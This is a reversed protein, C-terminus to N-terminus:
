KRKFINTFPQIYASVKLSFIGFLIAIINGLKLFIILSFVIVFILIRFAYSKRTHKLADDERMFVADEISYAMHFVMFLAMLYGEFFGIGIYIDDRFFLLIVLEGLLLYATMGSLLKILMPNRKILGFM